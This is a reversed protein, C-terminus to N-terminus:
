TLPNGAVLGETASFFHVLEAYSDASPFATGQGQVTWSQGGNTTHLIRSGVSDVPVTVVWASSASVASLGTVIERQSTRLPLTRVVWTQGGDTTLGLQPVVYQTTGDTVTWVTAADVVDLYTAVSAPSAFPIPQNVWQAQATLTCLSLGLLSRLFLNM